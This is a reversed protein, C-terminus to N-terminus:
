EKRRQKWFLMTIITVLGTIVLVVFTTRNDTQNGTQPM